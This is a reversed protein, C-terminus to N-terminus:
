LKKRANKLHVHLTQCSIGVIKAIRRSSLGCRIMDCVRTENTTLLHSRRGMDVGFSSFINALNFEL